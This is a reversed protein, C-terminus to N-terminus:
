KLTKEVEDVLAAFTNCKIADKPASVDYKGFCFWLRKEVPVGYCATTMNCEDVLKQVSDKVLSRSNIPEEYANVYSVPIKETKCEVLIAAPLVNGAFSNQKGSPNTMAMTHLLAPIAKKIIADADEAYELNKRLEDSDLSAYCYYCSSNFDIDGIMASGSSEMTDGSLLDDMATYYDSELVVRHTSVAHAVKISADVDRLADSTVMRGFLAIDLTIPRTNAGTVADAISKATIKKVEKASGCSEILNQVADAVATIDQKAYFAIQATRKGDKSEKGDKNGIGTIKSYVESIFEERIGRVRLEQSVLEPLNRTRVGLLNEGLERKFLESTRWSRKLCQSSIRGRTVGGFVCTKPAGTDDRNLNTAPYNKLIHIEYLM